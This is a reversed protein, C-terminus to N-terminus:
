TGRWSINFDTTTRDFVGPNCKKEKKRQRERKKEGKEQRNERELSM